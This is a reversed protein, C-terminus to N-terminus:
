KGKFELARKYLDNKNDGTIKATLKTAQKIPLEKILEALIADSMAHDTKEKESGSVVVVIEGKCQNSDSAVWECLEKLTSKRVTEFTKTLERAFTVLRDDGFVQQMDTLTDIVRPSSVYFVLTREEDLLSEFQNIRTGHKASPFGEFAFRNVTLGSASLAAIVASAGPVPVVKINNDHALSVLRYGPDNILPTGADSILAVSDGDLLKLVLKHSQSEENHDHYASMRANVGFSSLLRQSHRTDEAAIIDVTELVSRARFSIDDLNGIPTAVVYLTGKQIESM